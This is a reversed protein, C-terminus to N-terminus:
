LPKTTPDSCFITSLGNIAGCKPLSLQRSFNRTPLRSLSSHLFGSVTSGNWGTYAGYGLAGAADSTVTLTPSASLGPFLWFSVGNWSELFLLWWKLDLRFEANLRIPHDDSRFYCLLDIMRRIFARCPWVVKAAHHLHGILSELEKKRCCRKYAWSSLLKRLVSLKDDPLRAVQSLSDIEIGLVVLVSAPGACKDPHLPLGLESCVQLAATSLNQGCQYTGSPGATIFDDLYHVLPFVQYKNILIWEVMEAVSNFIFPASRLGFPLTLDVFFKDRWRMGLLARDAPHVAVNRYAALVDFKAMLAGDGCSSVMKIVDDVGIYQLSFEEGDIGDNVSAGRPSSLDVILRWKGPQSSKPIVGFSSVHLQPIPPHLFPGAVRGLAVEHALYEDIIAPHEKASKKNQKAARLRPKGSYGLRFGSRIGDLVYAVRLQNPHGQLEM